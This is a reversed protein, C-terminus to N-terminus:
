GRLAIGAVIRVSPRPLGIPRVAAARRVARSAQPRTRARGVVRLFYSVPSRDAALARRHQAASSSAELVRQARFDAMPKPLLGYRRSCGSPALRRERLGLLQVGQRGSSALTPPSASRCVTPAVPSLRANSATARSGASLNRSRSASSCTISARCRFEAAKLPMM